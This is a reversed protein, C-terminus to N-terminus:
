GPSPTTSCPCPGFSLGTLATGDSELTLPGAPSDYQTHFM